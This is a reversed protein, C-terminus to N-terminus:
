FEDLDPDIIMDAGAPADTGLNVGGPLQHVTGSPQGPFIKGLLGPDASLPQCAPNPQGLFTVSAAIGDTRLTSQLGAPDGLQSITIHIDGDAHM